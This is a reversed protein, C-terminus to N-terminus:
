PLKIPRVEPEFHAAPFLAAYLNQQVHRQAQGWSNIVM